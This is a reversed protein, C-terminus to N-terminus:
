SFRRILENHCRQELTDKLPPLAVGLARHLLEDALRPNKPLVPGHAYTGFTNRFLLGEGSDQGNNGYGTVVQGLPKLGNSLFTRGSHNEFGVVRGFVTDFVTNGIMRQEGGVTFFPLAGSLPIVTGDATRYYEGLLQYGGCIALIVRGSEIAYRLADAKRRVDKAVLAMEKDQGGGLFLIDGDPLPEGIGVPIVECGYHRRELRKQLCLVNGSDGYLNLEKRYLHLIRVKSM